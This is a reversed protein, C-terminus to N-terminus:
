IPSIASVMAPLKHSSHASAATVGLDFERKHYAAQDASSWPKKHMACLKYKAGHALVEFHKDLVWKEMGTATRSPKLALKMKIVSAIGESPYPALIFEDPREIYYFKPVGSQENWPTGAVFTSQPKSYEADLQEATMPNIKIGNYYAQIVGVIETGSEPEFQYAAQNAISAIPDADAVWCRTRECFEIAANRIANLAVNAQCGPVDILVEDYLATFLKGNM